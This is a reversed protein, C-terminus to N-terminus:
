SPNRYTKDTEGRQRHRKINEGGHYKAVGYKVNAMVHWVGNRISAKM